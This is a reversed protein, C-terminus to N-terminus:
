STSTPVGSTRITDQHEGAQQDGVPTFDGDADLTGASRQPDPRDRYMRGGIPVCAEHSLGIHRHADAATVPASQWVLSSSVLSGGQHVV